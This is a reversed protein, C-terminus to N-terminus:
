DTIQSDIPIIVKFPVGKIKDFLHHFDDEKAKWYKLIDAESAMWEYNKNLNSIVRAMLKGTLDNSMGDNVLTVFETEDESFGLWDM